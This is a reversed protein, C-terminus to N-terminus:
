TSLDIIRKVKSGEILGGEGCIVKEVIAPTPLSVFITEAADAVERATPLGRAGQAELEVRAEARMDSVVMANGGALIRQAMPVGMNGLGVFGIEQSMETGRLRARRTRCVARPRHPLQRCCGSRRLLHCSAP